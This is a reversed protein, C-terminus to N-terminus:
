AMLDRLQSLSGLVRSCQELIGHLKVEVHDKALRGSPVEYAMVEKHQAANLITTVEQVVKVTGNILRVFDPELVVFKGSTDKQKFRALLIALNVALSKVEDNLRDVECIIQPVQDKTENNESM